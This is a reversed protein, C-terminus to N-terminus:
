NYNVSNLIIKISELGTKQKENSRIATSPANHSHTRKPMNYKTATFNDRNDQTQIDMKNLEWEGLPDTRRREFRRKQESVPEDPSLMRGDIKFQKQKNM